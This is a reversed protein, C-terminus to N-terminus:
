ASKLAWTWISSNFILVLLDTVIFSSKKREREKKRGVGGKGFILSFPFNSFYQFNNAYTVIPNHLCNRYKQIKNIHGGGIGEERETEKSNFHKRMNFRPESMKREKSYKEWLKQMLQFLDFWFRFFENTHLEAFYEQLNLLKVLTWQAHTYMVYLACVCVCGCVCMCASNSWCKDAHIYKYVGMQVCAVISLSNQKIKPLTYCCYRKKNSIDKQWGITTPASCHHIRPKSHRGEKTCLQENSHWKQQM